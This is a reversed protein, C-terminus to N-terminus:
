PQILKLCDDRFQVMDFPKTFYLDAGAALIQERLRPDYNGTIAVIRIGRTRRNSKLRKCVEIGNMGPMMIDLVVLDPKREGITLLAEVGSEATIVDVHDDASRMFDSLLDLIEKEDDVILVLSERTSLEPPLPMGFSKMFAALDERRIRRHGGPTLYARLKKEKVWNQVTTPNVECLQSIEFTTYFSRRANVM